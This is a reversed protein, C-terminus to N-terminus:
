VSRPRRVLLILGGGALLFLAGLGALKSSGGTAPLQVVQVTTPPATTTPPETTTPPGSQENEPDACIETAPPYSVEAEATPNVEVHVTLGDRLRTDSPDVDWLGNSNLKWGPWDPPDISAGPYIVKGSLPVGAHKAVQKGDLDFFTLTATTNPTGSVEINYSIFPTDAQCVPSFAAVDITPVVCQEGTLKALDFPGFTTTGTLRVGQKAVATYTGDANTVWSYFDSPPLVVAGSASCTPPTTTPKAVTHECATSVQFTATLTLTGDPNAGAGFTFGENPTITVSYTNDTLTVNGATWNASEIPDLTYSSTKSVCDYFAKLVPPLIENAECDSGAVYTTGDVVLTVDGEDEPVTGSDSVTEGLNATLTRQEGGVTYNLVAPAVTEWPDVGDVVNSLVIQWSGCIATVTVQPNNPVECPADTVVFTHSFPGPNGQFAYGQSASFSGSVSDNPNYDGAESGNYVAGYETTVTLTGQPNACTGDVPTWTGTTPTSPCETTKPRKLEISREETVQGGNDNKNKWHSTVWVTVSPTNAAFPGVAIPGYPVQDDTYASYASYSGSGVKIKSQWNKNYDADSKATVTGSWQTNAGCPRTVTQSLVPHHALAIGPSAVIAGAGITVAACAVGVVNRIKM